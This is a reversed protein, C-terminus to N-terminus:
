SHILLAVVIGINSIISLMEVIAKEVVRKYIDELFHQKKMM